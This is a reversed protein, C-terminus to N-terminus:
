RARALRRARDKRRSKTHSRPQCVPCFVTTRQGIVCSNLRTGCAFCPKGGNGYVRHQRVYDGASGRADVYDRVSSGGAQVARELVERLARTLRQWDVERLRRPALRPHVGAAFLAEDAYINGVGALLRQNLLAIKMCQRTALLRTRLAAADLPPDFADPGLRAWGGRHALLDDMSDFPWLGGFRRPDRFLLRVHPSARPSARPQRRAASGRELLWACHVHKDSRWPADPSRITLSGTMGMHLVLVRANDAVLALSKGRRRVDVIAGGQLLDAPTIRRRARRSGPQRVVDRRRLEVELVRAGVIGGDVLTRRLHEIEPLEPVAHLM